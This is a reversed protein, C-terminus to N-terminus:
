AKVKTEVASRRARAELVARRACGVQIDRDRVSMRNDHHRYYYHTEPLRAIEYKESFRLCFEYDLAAPYEPNFGGVDEFASRRMLRFHHTLFFQLEAERSYTMLCRLGKGQNRGEADIIEHDSYVLGAEPHEDLFRACAPLADKGLIDDADVLGIYEGRALSCAARLAGIRGLHPAEIVHVQPHHFFVDYALIASNDTSGDDWLLYELDKFNQFIVSHMAERLYREHNFVTTVISVKM